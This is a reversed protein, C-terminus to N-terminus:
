SIRELEGAPSGGDATSWLYGAIGLTASLAVNGPSFIRGSVRVVMCELILAALCLALLSSLLAPSGFRIRRFFASFGLFAGATFFVIAYFIINYGELESPKVRRIIRALAAGPGLKFAVRQKQGDVTLSLNSGDYRYVIDRQRRDNFVGPVSWILQAHRSSLPTRFGFGLSTNEQRIMVDAVGNSDTIYLIRGWADAFDMPTCLLRITFQNTRSLSEALDAVNAKTSLWSKGDLDLGPPDVSEPATPVWFLEPVTHLQLTSSSLSAFDYNIIPLDPVGPTANAGDKLVRNWIQVSQIQGHWPNRGSADNGLILIADPKWNSLRSQMQLLTGLVFYTCLYVVLLLVIRRATLMARFRQETSVLTRVIFVGVGLYFIAGMLAGSGNTFVDEWGSDREPIYLQLFEITYSFVAGWVLASVLVMRRSVGRERLKEALGFGFPVFLLVNLFADAFGGGKGSNGLLFPSAGHPLVHFSFRFPYMTLFLIGATALLLIRNSWSSAPLAYSPLITQNSM